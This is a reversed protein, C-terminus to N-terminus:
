EEFKGKKELCLGMSFALEADGPNDTLLMRLLPEASNTDGLAVELLALRRRVDTRDQDRILVEEYARRARRRVFPMQEPEDLMFGFRAMAQTDSPMRVVYQGLFRVCREKNGEAEASNAMALLAASNRQWQVAYLLHVLAGAVLLALLSWVLFRVNLSIRPSAMASNDRPSLGRQFIRHGLGFNSISGFRTRETM